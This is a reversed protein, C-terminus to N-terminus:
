SADSRQQFAVALFRSEVTRRQHDLVESVHLLIGVLLLIPPDWFSVLGEFSANSGASAARCQQLRSSSDTM